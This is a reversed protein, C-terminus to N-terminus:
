NLIFTKESKQVILESCFRDRFRRRHANIEPSNKPSRSTVVISRKPHNKANESCLEITKILQDLGHDLDKGKLEIFNEINGNDKEIVLWDCSLHDKNKFQCKDIEIKLISQEKSNKLYVISKSKSNKDDILIIKRKLLKCCEEKFIM